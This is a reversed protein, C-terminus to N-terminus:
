VFRSPRETVDVRVACAAGGTVTIEDAVRKASDLDLDAIIANAGESALGRCIGAGIGSAGGTVIITRGALRDGM